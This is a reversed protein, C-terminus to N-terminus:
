EDISTVSESAEANAADKFDSGPILRLLLIDDDDANVKYHESGRLGPVWIVEEHYLLLPWFERAPWPIKEDVFIDSVKTRGQMGLPTIRDGPLHNRLLLKSRVRASPLAYLMGRKAQTIEEYLRDTMKDQTVHISWGEVLDIEQMGEVLIPTEVRIQPYEGFPIIADPVRLVAQREFRLFELGGSTHMRQVGGKSGLAQRLAEVASFPIDRITPALSQILDRLFVRQLAVSLDTFERTQFRCVGEAEQIIIEDRVLRTAESLHDSLGAMVEATRLIVQKIQPNYSELIPILMGRIRNRTFSPDQNSPDELPVLNQGKCFDVTEHRTIELLPRVLVLDSRAAMGFWNSISIRPTMGRLGELGAGRLFHMLVTEVQDDSTHGTAIAHIRHREAVDILYQYRAERAAEELSKAQEALAQVDIAKGEFPLGRREVLDKVFELEMHSNPRLQHDLHAIVLPYGLNSLIEMLCLSDAGGSVGLVVPQNPSLLGHHDIFERVKEHIDM